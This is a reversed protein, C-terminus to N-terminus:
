RCFLPTLCRAISPLAAILALFGAAAMKDANLYGHAHHGPMPGDHTAAESRRGWAALLVAGAGVLLCAEVAGWAAEKL